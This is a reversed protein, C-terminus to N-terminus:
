RTQPSTREPITGPPPWNECGSPNAELRANRVVIVDVALGVLFGTV